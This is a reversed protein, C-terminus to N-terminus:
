YKSKTLNFLQNLFLISKINIRKSKKSNIYKSKFYYIIIDFERQKLADINIYFVKIKDFHM